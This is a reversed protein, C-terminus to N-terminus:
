LHSRRARCMPATPLMAHVSEHLVRSGERTLGRRRVGLDGGVGACCVPRTELAIGMIRGDEIALDVIVRDGCTPNHRHRDWASPLRGARDREGGAASRRGTSPDDDRGTHRL